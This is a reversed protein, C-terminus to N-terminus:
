RTLVRKSDTTFREFPEHRKGGRRFAVPNDEGLDHV